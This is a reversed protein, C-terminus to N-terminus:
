YIKKLYEKRYQNPTQGFYQTFVRVFHSTDCFGSCEAIDRVTRKSNILQSQASELRVKTLYKIPPMLCIKTFKEIFTSRSLGAANALREITIKEDYKNHIISLAAAFSFELNNIEKSSVSQGFSSCLLTILEASAYSRVLVDANSNKGSHAVINKITKQIYDLQEESLRLYFSVDDSMRIIPETKFLMLYYPLTEFDPSFKQMFSDAILLHFVELREDSVYGHAFDPPVVFVDGKSASIMRNGIYHCGSGNLVINIEFFKQIHMGISYNKEIFGIVARNNDDFLENEEYIYKKENELM